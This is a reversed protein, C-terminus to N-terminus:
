VKCQSQIMANVLGHPQLRAIMVPLEPQRLHPGSEAIGIRVIHMAFSWLKFFSAM